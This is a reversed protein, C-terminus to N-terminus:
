LTMRQLRSWSGSLREMVDKQREYVDIADELVEIYEEIDALFEEVVGSEDYLESEDLLDNFRGYETM